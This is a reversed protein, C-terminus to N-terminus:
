FRVGVTVIDRELKDHRRLEVFVAPGVIVSAKAGIGLNWGTSAESGGAGIGYTGWGGIVYPTILPIPASVVASLSVAAKGAQFLYADGRIGPLLPLKLELSVNGHDGRAVGGRPGIGVGAGVGLSVQARAAAPALLLVFALASLRKMLTEGSITERQYVVSM